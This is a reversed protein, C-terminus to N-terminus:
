VTIGTAFAEAVIGRIPNKLRIKIEEPTFCLIEAPREDLWELYALQARKHPPIGEFDESVVILDFDSDPSFIGKARSGFFVLQDVRLKGALANKFLAVANLNENKVM